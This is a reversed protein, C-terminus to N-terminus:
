LFRILQNQYSIKESYSIYGNEYHIELDNIAHQAEGSTFIGTRLREKIVDMSYTYTGMNSRRYFTLYNEGVQQTKKIVLITICQPSQM